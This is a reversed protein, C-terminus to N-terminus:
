SFSSRATAESTGLRSGMMPVDQVTKVDAVRVGIRGVGHHELGGAEGAELIEHFCESYPLWARQDHRAVGVLLDMSEAHEVGAVIGDAEVRDLFLQHGPQLPKQWSGLSGADVAQRPERIAVGHERECLGGDLLSDVDVIRERHDHDMRVVEPAEVIDVTVRDTLQHNACTGASERRVGHEIGVRTNAHRRTEADRSRRYGLFQFQEDRFGVGAPIGGLFAASVTHEVLGLAVSEGADVIPTVEAM